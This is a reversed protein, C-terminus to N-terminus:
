ILMSRRDDIILLQSQSLIINSRAFGEAPTFQRTPPCLSSVGGNKLAEGLFSNEWDDSKESYGDGNAETTFVRSSVRVCARANMWGRMCVCACECVGRAIRNYVSKKRKRIVLVM